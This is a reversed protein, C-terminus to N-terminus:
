VSSIPALEAFPLHSGMVVICGTVLAANRERRAAHATLGAGGSNSVGIIIALLQREVWNLPTHM